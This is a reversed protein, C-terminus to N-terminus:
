KLCDLGVLLKVLLEIYYLSCLSSWTSHLRFEKLSKFCYIEDCILIMFRKLMPRGGQCIRTPPSELKMVLPEEIYPPSLDKRLAEVDLEKLFSFTDIHAAAMCFHPYSKLIDLPFECSDCSYFGHM